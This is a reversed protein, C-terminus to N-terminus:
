RHEACWHYTKGDSIFSHNNLLNYEFYYHFQPIEHMKAACQASGAYNKGRVIIKTPHCQQKLNAKPAIFQEDNDLTYIRIGNGISHNSCSRTGYDGDKLPIKPAAYAATTLVGLVCVCCLGRM